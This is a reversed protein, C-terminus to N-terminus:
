LDFNQKYSVHDWFVMQLVFCNMANAGCLVILVVAGPSLTQNGRPSSPGTIIYPAKFCLQQHECM